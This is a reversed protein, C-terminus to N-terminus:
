RAQVGDDMQILRGLSLERGGGASGFCCAM